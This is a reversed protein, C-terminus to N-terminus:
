VPSSVRERCSARGIKLRGTLSLLLARPSRNLAKTRQEVLAVMEAVSLLDTESVGGAPVEDPSCPASDDPPNQARTPPDYSSCRRRRKAKTCDTAWNGKVKMASPRPLGAGSFQHAVFFAIKEKTNGPKIVYWTDLLVHGDEMVAASASSRFLM